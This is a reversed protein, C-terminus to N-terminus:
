AVHKRECSLNVEGIDLKSQKCGVIASYHGSRQATLAPACREFLAVLKCLAGEISSFGLVSLINALRITIYRPTHILFQKDIVNFGSGAVIIEIQGMFLTVGLEFSDTRFVQVFAEPLKARLAVEPNHPNDLTLLLIGNEVCIRWIEGLAVTIDSPKKFHDLTSLSLVVDIEGKHFPMWRVDAVVCLAREGSAELRQKAKRAVDIDNDIGIFRCDPDCLRTHHYPGAAEDFLDTKLVLGKPPGGLQDKIWANIIEARAIWWANNRTPIKQM